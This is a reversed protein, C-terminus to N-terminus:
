ATKESHKKTEHGKHLEKLAGNMACTANLTAGPEISFKGITLDGSVNATAKITLTEAVSLQGSFKGEIDANTSEVTGKIFGDVGIIVRGNTKLTGELTGDIRYDGDSTIDGVFTSNKAIVNREMSKSKGKLLDQKNEQDIPTANKAKNNFM